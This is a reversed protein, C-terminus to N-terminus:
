YAYSLGLPLSLSSYNVNANSVGREGDGSFRHGETELVVGASVTLSKNLAYEALFVAQINWSVQHQGSSSGYEQFYAPLAAWFQGRLRLDQTVNRSLGGGLVPGLALYQPLLKAGSTFSGPNQSFVGAGFDFNLDNNGQRLNISYLGSVSLRRVSVSAGGIAVPEVFSANHYFANLKFANGIPTAHTQSLWFGTGQDEGTEYRQGKGQQDFRSQSHLYLLQTQNPRILQQSTASITSALVPVNLNDLEPNLDKPLVPDGWASSVSACLLFSLLTTQKM